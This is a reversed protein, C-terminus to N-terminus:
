NGGHLIFFSFGSGSIVSSSIGNSIGSLQHQTLSPSIIETEEKKEIDSYVVQKDDQSEKNNNLLMTIPVISIFIISACIIIKKKNNRVFEFFKEKTDM